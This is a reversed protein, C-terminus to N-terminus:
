VTCIGGEFIAGDVGIKAFKELEEDSNVVIFIKANFLYNDAMEQVDKALEQPVIIHSAGYNESLVTETISSVEFATSISNESLHHILSLNEPSFKVLTTSNSPTKQVDEISNIRYLPEGRFYQHGIVIM